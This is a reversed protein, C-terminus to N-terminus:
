KCPFVKAFRYGMVNIWDEAHAWTKFQLPKNTGPETERTNTRTNQVEYHTFVPPKGFVGFEQNAKAKNMETLEGQLRLCPPAM